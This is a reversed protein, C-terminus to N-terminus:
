SSGAGAGAPAKGALTNLLAAGREADDVSIALRGGSVYEVVLCDGGRIMITAAGPLGRIGWGGVTSPFREESWARRVRTIPIHRRPQRLPGYSIRLGDETVRARVSGFTLTLVGALAMIVTPSWLMDKGGLLIVVLFGAGVTLLSVGIGTLWVNRATSLWVARQGPRLRITETATDGSRPREDPGPRAALAGLWGGLLMAAVASLVGWSLHGAQPWAPVDLNATLTVLQLVVLFLGLGCLLAGLGMRRPRQRLVGPVRLAVVCAGGGILVWMSVQLTLLTVFSMSGDPAGSAGWHSAMPEPLRDRLALPVAVLVATLLAFWGIAVSLFRGRLGM